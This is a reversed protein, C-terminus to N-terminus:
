ASSPMRSTSLDRPSPSTYLLCFKALIYLAIATNYDVPNPGYIFSERYVEVTKRFFEVNYGRKIAIAIGGNVPLISKTFGASGLEKLLEPRQNINAIIDLIVLLTHNDIEKIFNTFLTDLSDMDVLVADIGSLDPVVQVEKIEKLVEVIDKRMIHAIRFGHYKVSISRSLIKIFYLVYNSTPLYAHSM